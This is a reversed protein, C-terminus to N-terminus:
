GHLSPLFLRCAPKQKLPSKHAFNITSDGTPKRQDSQLFAPTLELSDERHNKASASLKTKNNITKLVTEVVALRALLGILQPEIQRAESLTGEFDASAITSFARHLEPADRLSLPDDLDYSAFSGHGETKSVKPLDNILTVARRLIELSDTTSLALAEPALM